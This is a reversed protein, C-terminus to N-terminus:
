ICSNNLSLSRMPLNHTRIWSSESILTSLLFIMEFFPLKKETIFAASGSDTLNIVSNKLQIIKIHANKVYELIVMVNTKPYWKRNIIKHPFVARIIFM